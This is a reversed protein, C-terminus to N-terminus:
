IRPLKDNAPTLPNPALIRMLLRALIERFENRAPEDKLQKYKALFWGLDTRGFRVFGSASIGPPHGPGFCTERVISTIPDGADDFIEVQASAPCHNREDILEGVIRGDGYCHDGQRMLINAAPLINIAETYDRDGWLATFVSDAQSQAWIGRSTLLTLVRDFM